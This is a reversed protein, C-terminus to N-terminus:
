IRLCRCWLYRKVPSHLCSRICSQREEGQTRNERNATIELSSASAQRYQLTSFSAVPDKEEVLSVMGADTTRIPGPWELYSLVFLLWSFIFIGQRIYKRNFLFPSRFLSKEFAVLSEVLSAFFLFVNTLINGKRRRGPLVIDTVTQCLLLLIDAALLLLETIIKKVRVM